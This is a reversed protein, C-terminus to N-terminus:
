HNLLLMKCEIIETRINSTGAFLELCSLWVSKVLLARTLQTKHCEWTDRVDLQWTYFTFVKIWLVLTRILIKVDELDSIQLCNWGLKSLLGWPFVLLSEKNMYKYKKGDAAHYNSRTQIQCIPVQMSVLRIALVRGTALQGSYHMLDLVWGPRLAWGSHFNWSNQKIQCMFWGLLKIWAIFM